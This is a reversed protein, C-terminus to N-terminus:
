KSNLLPRPITATIQQDSDILTSEKNGPRPINVVIQVPSNGAIEDPQTYKFQQPMRNTLWFKQADVDGPLEREIEVVSAGRDSETVRKERVKQGVARDYLAQKVRNDAKAQEINYAIFFKPNNKSWKSVTSQDVQLIEAIKGQSLGFKILEPLKEFVEDTLKSPRGGKNVTNNAPKTTKNSTM